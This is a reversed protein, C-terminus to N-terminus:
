CSTYFTHKVQRYYSSYLLPLNTQIIFLTVLAFKVYCADSDAISFNRAISQDPQKNHMFLITSMILM